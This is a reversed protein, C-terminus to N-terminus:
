RLTSEVKEVTITRPLENIQYTILYGSNNAFWQGPRRSSSKAEQPRPNIALDSIWDRVREFSEFPLDSLTQQVSGSLQVTFQKTHSSVIPANLSVLSTDDGMKKSRLEYVKSAMRLAWADFYRFALSPPYRNLLWFLTAIIAIVIPWKFLSTVPSGLWPVRKSNFSEQTLRLQPSTTGSRSEITPSSQVVDQPSLAYLTRVFASIDAETVPGFREKQFGDLADAFAAATEYRNKAKKELAKLIIQSLEPAIKKNINRPDEVHADRVNELLEIDTDGQFCNQLTLLEWLVIGAAFIDTRPDVSEGLAQEPSMYSFKGKLMGAKSDQSKFMAKAIGFDLIKVQGLFSIMVNQPSIDRHVIQLLRGFNDVRKHAYDLARLVQIMVHTAMAVPFDMKRTKLRVMISKLDKGHIYEMAM